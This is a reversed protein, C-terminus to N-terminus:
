SLSDRTTFTIRPPVDSMKRPVVGSGGERTKMVITTKKPYITKFSMKRPVVGSGGERTKM